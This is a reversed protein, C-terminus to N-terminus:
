DEKRFHSVMLKEQYELTSKWAYETFKEFGDHLSILYRLWDGFSGSSYDVCVHKGIQKM